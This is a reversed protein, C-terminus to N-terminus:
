RGAHIAQMALMIGLIFVANESDAIDVALKERVSFKRAMEAIVLDGRALALHNGSGNSTLEGDPTSIEYPEGSGWGARRVKARAGVAEVEHFMSDKNGTITAVERGVPDRLVISADLYGHAEFAPSGAEDTIEFSSLLSWKHSMVYRMGSIIAWGEVAAGDVVTL